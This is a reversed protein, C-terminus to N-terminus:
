SQLGLYQSSIGYKCSRNPSGLMVEALQMIKELFVISLNHPCAADFNALPLIAKRGILKILEIAKFSGLCTNIRRKM